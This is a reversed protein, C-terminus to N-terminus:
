STQEEHREVVETIARLTRMEALRKDPFRVDFRKEVLALLRLAALSDLALHEVLDDDMAIKSADRGTVEGVLGRLKDLRAKM